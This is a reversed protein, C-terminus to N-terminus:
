SYQNWLDERKGASLLLHQAGHQKTRITNYNFFLVKVSDKQVLGGQGAPGSTLNSNSVNYGSAQMKGM